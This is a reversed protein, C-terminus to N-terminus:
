DFITKATPTPSRASELAPIRLAASLGPHNDSLTL